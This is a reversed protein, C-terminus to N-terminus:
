FTQLLKRRDHVNEKPSNNQSFKDLSIIIHENAFNTFKILSRGPRFSVYPIPKGYQDCKWSTLFTM